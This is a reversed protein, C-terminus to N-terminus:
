LGAFPEADARSVSFTADQLHEALRKSLAGLAPRESAWHGLAIASAGLRRITLADHHRIEGTVIVDSGTLNMRFPLSGAAGVVIVAREVSREAEGVIQVCGSHVARKLKKALSALSVARPLRGVRGIGRVPRPELPYIDYAPEEYSHAAVMAAVVGPLARSPVVAELRIEDVYELRGREGITPSTSEGGLFSGRCAIRNSCHSYDGIHGAGAAFMADAVKEVEPVPVYVALKVRSAGP